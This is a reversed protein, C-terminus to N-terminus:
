KVVGDSHVLKFLTTGFVEWESEIASWGFGAVEAKDNHTPDCEDRPLECIVFLQKTITDDARQPDIIVFNAGVRELHYQYAGEYNREAIVAFNFPEGNSKEIIHEAVVVSREYQRNPPYKLPSNQLNVFLLYLITAVYGHKILKKKSEWARQFVGGILLPPVPYLFGFYHDYIHQKYVGFGILAIGWWLILIQYSQSNYFFKRDRAFKYILYIFILNVVLIDAVTGATENHAGLISTNVQLSLDGLKPLATWPRASVTTQRETFFVKMADFNRWGHRADFIVLPSMLFLFAILGLLSQKIYRRSLTTRVNKKQRLIHVFKLFLFFFIVPALILGLYHSQMAFAYSVALVVLWKYNNKTMVMWLSHMVLLTFFPMINPNWSSRSYIIITPAVAYLAAAVLAGWHILNKKTPFWQRVVFWVFWVTGIGLLAIMVAPGVPSFNALLLAPAMMYYYLPGLYMNGISTGPGVLIPDFDVLLRRVIIVDRGEDGLFTMYSGIMYLRSVAAVLLILFLIYFENRNNKKWLTIQKWTNKLNDM